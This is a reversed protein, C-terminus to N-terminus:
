GTWAWQGERKRKKPRHKSLDLHLGNYTVKSGVRPYLLTDKGDRQYVREKGQSDLGVSDLLEVVPRPMSQEPDHTTRFRPIRFAPVHAPDLDKLGNWPFDRFFATWEDRVGQDFLAGSFHEQISGWALGMKGAWARAVLNGSEDQVPGFEEYSPEGTVEEALYL